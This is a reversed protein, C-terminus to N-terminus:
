LKQTNDLLEVAKLARTEGDFTYRVNPKNYANDLCPNLEVFRDQMIDAPKVPKIRYETDWDWLPHSAIGWRGGYDRFEIEAGNAWAVILDAHKHRTQTTQSSGVHAPQRPSYRQDNIFFWSEPKGFDWLVWVVVGSRPLFEHRTVIGHSPEGDDDFEPAYVVWSGVPYMAKAAELLATTDQTTM